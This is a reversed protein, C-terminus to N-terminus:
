KAVRKGLKCDLLLYMLLIGPITFLVPNVNVLASIFSDIYSSYVAPESSDATNAQPLFAWVAFLCFSISAVIWGWRPFIRASKVANRVREQEVEQMVRYTFNSSLGPQTEQMWKKFPKDM